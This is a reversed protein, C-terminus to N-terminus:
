FNLFFLFLSITSCIHFRYTTFESALDHLSPIANGGILYELTGRRKRLKLSYLSAAEYCLYSRADAAKAQAINWVQRTRKTERQINDLAM